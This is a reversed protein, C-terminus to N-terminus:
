LDMHCGMQANAHLPWLNVSASAVARLRHHFLPLGRISRASRLVVLVHAVYAALGVYAKLGVAVVIEMKVFGLPLLEKEREREAFPGSNSRKSAHLSGESGRCPM